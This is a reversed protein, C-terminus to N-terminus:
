IESDVYDDKGAGLGSWLKLLAIIFLFILPIIWNEFWDFIAGFLVPGTAALTYGVSQSMGSLENASTTTRSRLVILLLALGFSGGLALGMLSVWVSIFGISPISLGVLAVLELIVLLIVPNKQEKIRAAWAPIFLTATIGVGQMLALQWGAEGATLGREILIDPLWAILTYFTLSQVGMFISVYWALKSSGLQRLSERFGKKLIIPINTRMQPLWFILATLALFGWVGLAWRWGLGYTESLPVSAGSAVTAGIGLTASYIGTMTGAREPFQKKVIGPLLVNGLAIGIGLMVTGSYLLMVSPHVRLFIGSTLLTLALLMTGETGIKRTFLPTLVSILGFGLVPLTTLLGIASSSLGTDLRIESVLPGVATIAPRLNLSILLIAILLVIKRSKESSM